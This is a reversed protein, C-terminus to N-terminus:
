LPKSLVAVSQGLSGCGRIVRGDRWTLDEDLPIHPKDGDSIFDLHFGLHHAWAAIAHRDVFQNLHYGPDSRAVSQRFIEWHSQIYFELFSFVVRGGPRLVRKAERLYRFADEHTLHTFVSFFCAFDACNGGCPISEGDTCLFDWDARKTVKRAHGLLEPVVDTGLYGLERLPSLQLALRGCGCGVDVVFDGGGLGLSRLLAHELKGVTVFDGGVAAEFAEEEPLVAQLRAVHNPYSKLFNMEAM